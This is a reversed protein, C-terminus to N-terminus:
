RFSVAGNNYVEKIQIPTLEYHFIKVDDILGDFYNGSPSRGIYTNNVTDLTFGDAIATSNYFEGNIYSKKYNGDKIVLVIHQWSGVDVTGAPWSSNAHYFYWDGSSFHSLSFGDSCNNDANGIAINHGSANADAKAWLSVTLEDEVYSVDGADIGDDTGDLSMASNTKGTEGNNWAHATNGSSCTGVATQTGTGGITITGNNGAQGSDASPGWDYATGGECEDFKWHAVPGGRNYEWAIQAPTRAYDYIRVEDMIGNYGYSAGNYGGLIAYNSVTSCDFNGTWSLATTAGSQKGNIYIKGENNTRDMVVSAHNWENAIVADADSSTTNLTNNSDAARFTFSSDQDVSFPMYSYMYGIGSDCWMLIFPINYTASSFATPKLWMNVTYSGSGFNLDSTINSRFDLLDNGDFDVGGGFKGGGVWQPDRPNVDFDADIGSGSTDYTTTGSLEDMKIEMVPPNCTSSDGPVCYEVSASDAPASASQASSLSGAVLSKGHNYDLRVDEQTLAYKYVKFEDLKGTMDAWNTPAQLNAGQMDLNGSLNNITTGSGSQNIGNVYIFGVPIAESWDVIVAIHQWENLKAVDNPTAFSFSAADGYGRGYFSVSGSTNIGGIAWNCTDDTAWGACYNSKTFWRISTASDNSSFTTPYIWTSISFSDTGFQISEDDATYAYDDTGDFEGAKGFKGENDWMQTTTTNSGGTGPSLTGNNSNPSWDYVTSGYGEDFRWYLAQSGVPSGVAPHGGNMDEVIQKGTRAYDYIRVDDILGDFYRTNGDQNGILLNVATTELSGIINNKSFTNVGNIYFKVYDEDLTISVHQWENINLNGTEEGDGLTDTGVDGALYAGIKGDDIRFVYKSGKDVIISRGGSGTTVSHPYIWASITMQGSLNLSSDNGADTYDDAGDFECATGFKGPKTCDMGTDNAGDNTTGNNENGSTDYVTQGNGSVQEDMKWRAVPGPAWEYLKRVETVSLARNYIRVEDMSGTFEPDWDPTVRNGIKFTTNSVDGITSNTASTNLEGNVYAKWESGNRTFLLHYWEGASAGTNIGTLVNESNTGDGARLAISNLGGWTYIGDNWNNSTTYTFATHQGGSYKIWAGITFQQNSEIEINSVDVVDDNGDFAGGNGYRGAVWSPEASLEVDDIYWDGTDGKTDYFAIKANSGGSTETYSFTVETWADQTTVHDQDYLISFGTGSYVSVGIDNSHDGYIWAKVNYTVGSTVTFGDSEIGDWTGDSTFKRSYTGGHVQTTSRENVTPSNNNNWNSDLEMDGNVVQNGTYYTGSNGNGSLDAVTVGSGEDMKWYGVLGDSMWAASKDGVSVASGTASKAGALGANYDQNIQDASRAYQYVKVEDLFGEIFTGTDLGGLMLYSDTNLTAGTQSPPTSDAAEGNVYIQVESGDYTGTLFYWKNLEIANDAKADVSTGSTNAIQFYPKLDTGVRMTYSWWAPTGSSNREYIIQHQHASTTLKVWASATVTDLGDLVDSEAVLVTQFPSGDGDIYVCKGIVCMDEDQWTVNASYITGDNGQGSEDHATTGYGEDFSWYGVPGKGQEESGVSTLFGAPDNMNNYATEIWGASRPTNSVRFEDMKGNIPNVYGDGITFTRDDIKPYASDYTGSKQFAGNVYWTYADGNSDRVVTIYVWTGNTVTGSNSAYSNYPTGHGGHSGMYWNIQGGSELTMTSWGGYAQNYPNQRNPTTVDNVYAWFSITADEGLLSSGVTGCSIGTSSSFDASTGAKGSQGFTVSSPTGATNGTSDTVSDTGSTGSPEGLHYVMAFNSSWVDATKEQSSVSANGYYIFLKTDDSSSLNRFKVWAVVQGTTNDYSEIEHSLIEGTESVFVFDDGDSQAHGIINTDTVDILVPFDQLDEVVDTSDIVIEKRYLWSDDWWSAVVPPSFISYLIYVISSFVLLITLISSSASMYPHVRSYKKNILRLPSRAMLFRLIKIAINEYTELKVLKHLKQKAKRM